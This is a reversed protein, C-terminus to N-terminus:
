KYIHLTKYAEKRLEEAVEAVQAAGRYKELAELSEPTNEVVAWPYTVYVERGTKQHVLYIYKAPLNSDGFLNFEQIRGTSVLVDGLEISVKDHTNSDFVPANLSAYIYEM